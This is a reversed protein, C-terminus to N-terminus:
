QQTSLNRAVARSHLVVCLCTKVQSILWNAEESDYFSVATLSAGFLSHVQHWEHEIFSGTCSPPLTVSHLYAGPNKECGSPSSADGDFLRMIIKMSVLMWLWHKSKIVMVETILTGCESQWSADESINFKKIYFTAATKAGLESGDLATSGWSTSWVNHCHSEIKELLRRWCCLAM